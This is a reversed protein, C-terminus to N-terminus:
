MERIFEQYNTCYVLWPKVDKHKFSITFYNQTSSVLIGAVQAYNVTDEVETGHGNLRLFFKLTFRVMHSGYRITRKVQVQFDRDSAKSPPPKVKDKTRGLNFMGREM